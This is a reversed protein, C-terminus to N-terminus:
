RVPRAPKGCGARPCPTVSEGVPPHAHACPAAGSRADRGPIQRPLTLVGSGAGQAERVVVPAATSDRARGRSSALEDLWRERGYTEIDEFSQGDVGAAGRNAKCCLYAHELVDERYVKDYLAYFRYGPSGKAKAHLAEQLKRVKPPPPLSMGIELSEGSRANGKFSPGKGGGANGPKWPVIPRESAGRPGAQGERTAPQLGRVEV